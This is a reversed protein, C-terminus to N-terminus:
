ALLTAARVELVVLSRDLRSPKKSSPLIEKHHQDCPATLV